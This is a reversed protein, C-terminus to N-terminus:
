AENRSEYYPEKSIPYTRSSNKDIFFVSKCQSTFNKKKRKEKKLNEKIRFSLYTKQKQNQASPYPHIGFIL